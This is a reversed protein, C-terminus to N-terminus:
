VDPGAGTPDRELFGTRAADLGDHRMVIWEAVAMDEFSRMTVNLELRDAPSRNIALDTLGDTERDFVCSSTVYPAGDRKQTDYVDSEVIQPMVRRGPGSERRTRSDSYVDTSTLVGPVLDAQRM